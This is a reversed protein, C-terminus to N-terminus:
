HNTPPARLGWVGPRLTQAAPSSKRPRRRTERRRRASSTRWAGCSVVAAFGQHHSEGCETASMGCSSM